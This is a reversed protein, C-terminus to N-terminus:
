KRARSVVNLGQLGAAPVGFGWFVGTDYHM